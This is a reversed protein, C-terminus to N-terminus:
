MGNLVVDEGMALIVTRDTEIGNKGRNCESLRENFLECLTVFYLHHQVNM